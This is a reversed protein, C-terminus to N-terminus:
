DAVKFEVQAGDPLDKIQKALDGSLGIAESIPVSQINDKAYKGGLVPSIVLCYCYDPKLKGLKERAIYVLKDMRWDLQFAEDQLLLDLESQSQAIPYCELSEPVIRWFVRDEAEVILNGFLNQAHIRSPKIGIWGWEAKIIDILSM